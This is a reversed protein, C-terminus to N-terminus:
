NAGRQHWSSPHDAAAHSDQIDAKLLMAAQLKNLGQKISFGSGYRYASHIQEAVAVTRRAAVAGYYWRLM